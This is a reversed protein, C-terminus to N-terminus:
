PALKQLFRSQGIHLQRRDSLIYECTEWIVSLIRAVLFDLNIKTVSVTRIGITRVQRFCQVQHILAKRIDGAVASCKRRGFLELFGQLTINFSSFDCVVAFFICIMRMNMANKLDSWAIEFASTINFFGIPNLQPLPLSGLNHGMQRRLVM